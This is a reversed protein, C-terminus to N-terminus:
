GSSPPSSRHRKKELAPRGGGPRRVRYATPTLAAADLLERRGKAVTHPDLDFWEALQRDGGHGLKLSELGAYVRRQREDLMSYFLIIAAKVEDATRGASRELLAGPLEGRVRRHAVQQQRRAPTRAVYLYRGHVDRRALRKEQVLQRLADKVEVHLAARLEDAYYGDGARTVWAESTRVLTGERSFWVDNVSWLGREDFEAVAALTYYRGRDSYSTLYALPKLKRFVTMAASTGLLQKLQPLTLIREAHFAQRLRETAALLLPM